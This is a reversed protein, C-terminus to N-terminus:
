SLRISLVRSFGRAHRPGPGILVRWLGSRRIPLSVSYTSVNGLRRLRPLRLTHWRRDAGFRQLAVPHGNRPPIVTGHFRVVQGPRPRMHSAFLSVRFRVGVHVPASNVGGAVVRFWSSLGFPYPGFSFTGSPASTTTAFTTFPGFASRSRQLTVTIRTRKTTVVTGSLTTSQGIVITGPAAGLTVRSPRAAVFTRDDGLATGPGNVAVLRYHYLTGPSLGGIAAEVSRPRTGSGASTRRTHGGYATTTGYQFFYSTASGQPNVAGTLTASTETVAKVGGTSVTPPPPPPKATTVTKDAGHATGSGNVAVLRYHYVTAPALSGIAASVNVGSSGSGAGLQPTHSGYSATRGYEFYYTTAQGEPNLEGSLTATTASVSKPSGTTALPLRKGTTFTADDGTTTGTGNTAVLRYHYTTNPTLSAIAASASVNSTGNGASSSATSTGYATTTGYEFHYTTASGQPNVTGTLTASTTSVGQASGTTASPASAALAVQAGVAAFAVCAVV